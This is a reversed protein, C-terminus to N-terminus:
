ATPRRGSSSWSRLGRRSSWWSWSPGPPRPGARDPLRAPDALRRVPRPGAPPPAPRCGGRDTPQADAPPQRGAAPRRLPRRGARALRPLSRWTPWSASPRRPPASWGGAATSCWCGPALGGPTAAEQREARPRLAAVRLGAGIHPALRRVLAVQGATFSRGASRALDATGWVGAGASFTGRLEDGLGAPGLLERWRPSCGLDGGTTETLLTVPRRAQPMARAEDLYHEFYLREFTAPADPALPEPAAMATTMLGTSPDTTSACWFDYPVAPRLRAVVTRLLGPGDLGAHCLRVVEAAVREDLLARAVM